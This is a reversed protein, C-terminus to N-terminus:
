KSQKPRHLAYILIILHLIACRIFSKNDTRGSEVIPTDSVMVDQYRASLMGLPESLGLRTQSLM